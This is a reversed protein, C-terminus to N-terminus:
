DLAEDTSARKLNRIFKNHAIAFNGTVSEGDEVSKTAVSGINVRSDAGVVIGNSIVTGPGIWTNRKIRVRGEILAGAAVLVSDELKAAHAIYVMNDTKVFNGIITDDWPFVARDVCCNQQIEVDHGIIVGGVHEVAMIRDRDRKFEFGEGGIVTGARIITRDGIVTNPRVVVFEEIVVDDGIIVNNEAISSLSSIKCRTGMVNKQEKRKYGETKSLHNHIKFFVYRPKEIFCVGHNGEPLYDNSDVDAIVMTANSPVRDAYKLDELFVCSPFDREGDCLTFYSFENENEMRYDEYGMDSLVDSLKM